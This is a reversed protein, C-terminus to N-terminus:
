PTQYTFQAASLTKGESDTMIVKWPGSMSPILRKSSYARWSNSRVRFVVKAVLRGEHWWSHTLTEGALGQLETFYYLRRLREGRSHFIGEIQDVPEKNRVGSALQARVVHASVAPISPAEPTGSTESTESARPEPQTSEVPSTATKSPDEVRRSPAASARTAPEATTQQPQPAPPPASAQPSTNPDPPPPESLTRATSPRAQLEDDRSMANAPLTPMVDERDPAITKPAPAQSRHKLFREPISQGLTFWAVVCIGVWFLLGLAPGFYVRLFEFRSKPLTRRRM